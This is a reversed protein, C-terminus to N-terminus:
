PPSLRAIWADVRKANVGMDGGGYRLRSYILLDDGDIWVTAYDPFGWIRSRTFYTYIGDDVSGALPRTRPSSQIIAELESMQAAQGPLIRLVSGGRVGDVPNAVSKHWRVPDNPAVRIWVMLAAILLLLAILIKM